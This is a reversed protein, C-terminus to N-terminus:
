AHTASSNYSLTDLEMIALTDQAPKPLVMGDFDMGSDTLNNLNMAMTPLGDQSPSIPYLRPLTPPPM